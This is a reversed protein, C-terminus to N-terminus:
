LTGAEKAEKEKKQAKAIGKDVGIGGLLLVAGIVGTLVWAGSKEESNLPRSSAKYEGDGEMKPLKFAPAASALGSLQLIEDTAAKAAAIQEQAKGIVQNTLDDASEKASSLASKAGDSGVPLADDTVKATGHIPGGDPHTSAPAVTVVRPLGLEDTDPAEPVAPKAKTSM